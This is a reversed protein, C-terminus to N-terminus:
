NSSSSSSLQQFLLNTLTLHVIYVHVHTYTYTHTYYTTHLYGRYDGLLPIQELPLLIRIITCNFLMQCRDFSVSSMKVVTLHYSVVNSLPWIIRICLSKPWSIIQCRDFSVLWSSNGRYLNCMLVMELCKRIRDNKRNKAFKQLNKDEVNENLHWLNGTLLFKCYSSNLAFKFIGEPVFEETPTTFFPSNVRYKKSNPFWHFHPPYKQTRALNHM